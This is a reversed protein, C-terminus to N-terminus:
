IRKKLKALITKKIKEHDKRRKLVPIPAIIEGSFKVGERLVYINKKRSWGGQINRKGERCRKSSMEKRVPQKKGDSLCSQWDYSVSSWTTHLAPLQSDAFEVISVCSSCLLKLLVEPKIVVWAIPWTTWCAQLSLVAWVVFWALSHCHLYLCVKLM